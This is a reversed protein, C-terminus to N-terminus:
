PKTIVRTSRSPNLAPLSLFPTKGYGDADREVPRPRRPLRYPVMDM